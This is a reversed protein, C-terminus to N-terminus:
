GVVEHGNSSPQSELRKALSEFLQAIEPDKLLDNLGEVNVPGGDPGSIEQPQVVKGEIRDFIERAAMVNGALAAEVLAEAVLWRNTKGEDDKIRLVRKLEDSM